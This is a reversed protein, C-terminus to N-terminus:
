KKGRKATTRNSNKGMRQWQEWLWMSFMESVQDALADQFSGCIESWESDSMKKVLMMEADEKSFWNPFCVKPFLTPDFQQEKKM